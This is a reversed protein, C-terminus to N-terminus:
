ISGSLSGPRGRFCASYLCACVVVLMCYEGGHCLDRGGRKSRQVILRFDPDLLRIAPQRPLDFWRGADGGGGLEYQGDVIIEITLQALVGVAGLASELGHVGM